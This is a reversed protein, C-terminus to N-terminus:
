VLMVGETRGGSDTRLVTSSACMGAEAEIMRANERLRGRHETVRAIEELDALDELM